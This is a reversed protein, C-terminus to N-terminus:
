AAAAVMRSAQLHVYIRIGTAAHVFAMHFLGTFGNQSAWVLRTAISAIYLWPIPGQSFFELVLYDKTMHLYHEPDQSSWVGLARDAVRQFLAEFTEAAHPDPLILNFSDYWLRWGQGLTIMSRQDITHELLAIHNGQPSRPGKVSPLSGVPSAGCLATTLLITTTYVLLLPSRM